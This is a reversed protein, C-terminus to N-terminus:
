SARAVAAAIRQRMAADPLTGLGANM